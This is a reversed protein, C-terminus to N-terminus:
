IIDQSKYLKIQSQRSVLSWSTNKVRANCYKLHKLLTIIVKFNTNINQLIKTKYKLDTYM